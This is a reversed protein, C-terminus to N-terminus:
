RRYSAFGYSQRPFLLRRLLKFIPIAVFGTVVAGGLIESLFASISDPLSGSLLLYILDGVISMLFVAVFIAFGSDVFIRQSLAAVIGFILVM